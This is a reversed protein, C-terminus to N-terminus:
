DDAAQPAPPLGVAPREVRARIDDRIARVQELDKGAV